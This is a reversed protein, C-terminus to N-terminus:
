YIDVYVIGPTNLEKIEWQNEIGKFSLDRFREDETKLIEELHGKGDAVVIMIEHSIYAPQRKKTLQYIKM